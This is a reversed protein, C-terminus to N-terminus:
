GASNRLILQARCVHEELEINGVKGHMAMVADPTRMRLNGGPDRHLGIPSSEPGRTLM